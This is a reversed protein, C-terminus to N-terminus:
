VAPKRRRRRWIWGAGLAIAVLGALLYGTGSGKPAPPEELTVISDIQPNLLVQEKGGSWYVIVSDVREAAGLGFHARSSNQSLHSSGGGDVERIMRRGGAVVAVRSGLGDSEADTGKLRVQLWHGGETDNRYLRTRSPTPYELVPEQNVVLLDLDGDNELDFVVSGRSIGYDNLGSARGQETFQAQENEFYFNAMAVCNPNLDGNAVYLDMDGDQDFDAFNAGWSIAFSYAGRAKAEDAFVAEGPQRVMLRNFKINTVYYELWGDNDIDGVACAMANIPLDMGSAESRDRFRKRPYENEYLFNPVAKYGFDQIVILDQDRDNDYDTFVGGFGFGKHTIGYDENALEFRQGDRNILLYSEATEHSSVITADKIVGLTGQFNRFYNGVFLDPYGDANVDGFAAGTSFSILEDLGFEATADRFTGDGQNIFLLNKARPIDDRGDTTNITTVYLDRFGDRNVDASVAGQTVYDKTHDLGSAAYTDEFTGDGQNVYLVDPNTGGTIYIDEFGDNNLDFVAAGGGFTGEYVKFVHDIGASDTVETFRAHQSYGAWPALGLLCAAFLQPIGIFLGKTM